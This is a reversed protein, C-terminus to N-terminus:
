TSTNIDDTHHRASASAVPLAQVGECELNQEWLRGALLAASQLAVPLCWDAVQLAGRTSSDHHWHSRVVTACSLVWSSSTPLCAGGLGGYQWHMACFASCCRRSQCVGLSSTPHVPLPTTASYRGVQLLEPRLEKECRYQWEPQGWTM